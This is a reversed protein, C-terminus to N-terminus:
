RDDESIVEGGARTGYARWAAASVDLRVARGSGDGFGCLVVGPHPGGFRFHDGMVGPGDRMPTLATTRSHRSVHKPVPGNPEDWCWPTIEGPLVWVEAFALTNSTGDTVAAVRVGAADRGVFGALRQDSAGYDSRRADTRDKGPCRLPGPNADDLQALHPKLEVTWGWGCPHGMTPLRGHQAEFSHCALPYQRVNSLCRARAAAERVKQVAPLTLGVLVAVIAVAVLLEVLTLAPRRM